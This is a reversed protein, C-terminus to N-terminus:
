TTAMAASTTLVARGSSSRGTEEATARWHRALHHLPAAHGNLHVRTVAEWDQETMDVLDRDLLTGASCVLADVRGFADVACDM